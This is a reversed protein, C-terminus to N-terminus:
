KKRKASFIAGDQNIVLVSAPEKDNGEFSTTIAEYDKLAFENGVTPVLTYLPQGPVLLKLQDAELSVTLVTGNLDYEGVFNKIYNLDSLRADAKKTFLINKVAPEFPASITAINGKIDSQFMLKFGDFTDDKGTKIGNFVDYHWHELPTVINNFSMELKDGQMSIKISGYGPNYYEGVYDSLIHSPKTNAKRTAKSKEESEKLLSRGKENRALADESWNITKLQLLRDSINRVLFEPFPTANINTLIVIGIDDQPLLSVLATFGDINGGHHVRRHGRYNDTFWGMAYAYATIEPRIGEGLTIQPSHLEDLTSGNILKQDNFKGHNLHVTVWKVMDEINSNISGAPGMNTIVRYSMEKVKNEKEDEQYPLAHDEQQKLADISFNSSNMGLPKFIKESVNDEWSKSTLHEVLYGATLFMLNNYEFKERLPNHAELYPLKSVIDGRSLGTNNYWILDHRPLGSRHTVLDRPTIQYSTIPDALKFTPMFNQVPKDFQLKGADVLLGMLFTTFAKSCSGIAFQTKTTVPLHKTSDREGFGKAYIVKGNKVIGVALGPIKWGKINTNIYQDLDALADTAKATPDAARKIAFPFSQGSQLLTGSMSQADASFKGKFTPTGAIGSIEYSIADEDQKINTLPIDKGGQAPISITGKLKGGEETFDLLVELKTGPLEVIGEWHGTLTTPMLSNQAFVPLSVLTFLLFLITGFVKHSIHRYM